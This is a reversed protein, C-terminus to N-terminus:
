EEEPLGLASRKMARPAGAVMEVVLPPAGPALAPAEYSSWRSLAELNETYLDRKVLNYRPTSYELWRNADTNLQFKREALLRDVDGESLLRSALLSAFDDQEDESREGPDGFVAKLPAPQVQLPEASAVLIGQGGVVWLAVHPFTERLTLIVSGIEQLSIHHLQVWQQLVGGAKLRRLALRYFERSYLSTSGAYWLSSIELSILDFRREENLLLFNRGDELRLKARPDDLVQHNVHGFFDHAAQVMGPAIEAIDIRKFGYAALQGASHGSGLGIVLADDPAAVHLMPVTAIGAQASSEGADNAQFKGNTLLTRTVGGEGDPAEVVTTIGGLTDEHFFAIKSTEDVHLLKFYVHGGNTLALRDWPPQLLWLGGVGLAVALPVAHLWRERMPADHPPRAYVLLLGGSVLAGFGFLLLTQESGILPILFFGTVLAGLVCGVSNWAGLRAAASARGAAPFLDLRFLLPYVMGLVLTSPLLQLGAQFWRLAESQFFGEVEAGHAVFFGPVQPWHARQLALLLSALVLLAGPVAASVPRDKGFLRAAVAGGLMLGILVLALMAAFAYVSNGLVAGILHTWVVELGFSLFGSGFAIALLTAALARRSALVPNASKASKASETIKTVPGAAAQVWAQRPRLRSWLGFAALAALGDVLATVLLTGRLGIGPFILYPGLLAGSVAGTLNLAYFRAMARRPQPVKLVELADVVAPFTAGMAVTPPIIWLCAAFLRLAQLLVFQDRGLRLLPTFLEVLTGSLAALLLSWLVVALELGAYALLPARRRSAFRGYGVAGLALGGFYAALVLAAAPTSAGVLGVLLKEYCQEALLGACGTAAFLLGLLPLAHRLRPRRM